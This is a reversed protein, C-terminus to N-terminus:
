EAALYRYKFDRPPVFTEKIDRPKRRLSTARRRSAWAGAGILGAFFAAMVAYDVAAM